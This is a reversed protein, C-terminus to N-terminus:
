DSSKCKLYPLLDALSDTYYDPVFERTEPNDTETWVKIDDRKSIGSLVLLTKMGCRKGTLIDTCANDGIFLTRKPTVNFADVIVKRMFPEPKGLITANRGSCVEICKLLTGPGPVAVNSIPIQIDASTALFLVSPDSLYTAVKLLKPYSFHVDFSVVVAGVEPDPVFSQAYTRIDPDMIDPGIGTHQIGVLDLEQGIGSSGLVYVKKSFNVEELYKAVLLAVTIIEEPKPYYGMRKSIEIFEERSEMPNNTVYFFRKGSQKLKTVTKPVDKIADTALRLVGDCDSLITDIGQLIDEIEHRKLTKLDVGAMEVALFPLNLLNLLVPLLDSLKETYYDPVLDREEKDDSKKWRELDNLRTVGSLVLLTKFGCRKGLLIDTDGKDGIMLTREPNLGYKSIITQSMYPEPKGLLVAKRNAAAEIVRLMCGSEPFINSNPSPRRNDCNTGIFHVNPDQVYTAAKAIKPFSIQDDFGVVVAGVDPDPNFNQIMELADSVLRDPQFIPITMHSVEIGVANLEKGIAETGVIYVKKNFNKEKLYAAVLYSTCMIEELKAQYQLKKCKELIEARTKTANDTVYFFKKGIVKLRRVVQPSGPIPETQVWLVGDCDSLVVDFSNVFRKLEEKSLSQLNSAAM